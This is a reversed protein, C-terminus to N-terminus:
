SKRKRIAKELIDDYTKLSLQPLDTEIKRANVPDLGTKRGIILIMKPKYSFLGYKEKVLDRNKRNDFFLHYERMQAVAEYVASSYRYRNKKLVYIKSSPLKIDLIDSISNQEHPELLFDPILPGEDERELMIRPHANKYDDNLIFDPFREFFDQFDAEKAGKYNILAELEEIAKALRKSDSNVVHLIKHLSKTPDIFQYKGDIGLTVVRLANEFVGIGVFEDIVPLQELEGIVVVDQAMTSNQGQTLTFEVMQGEELNRFGDGIIASFHVFVDSGNAQSLFGYGKAGNFWKVTGRVRETAM